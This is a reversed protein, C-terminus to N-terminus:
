RLRVKRGVERFFPAARVGGATTVSAGAMALEMHVLLKAAFERLSDAEIEKLWGIEQQSLEFSEGNYGAKVAALPDQLLKRCFRSSVVAASFLRNLERSGLGDTKIAPIPRSHGMQMM